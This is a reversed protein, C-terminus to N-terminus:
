PAAPKEAAKASKKAAHAELADNYQVQREFVVQDIPTLDAQLLRAPKEETRGAPENRWPTIFLGIPADDEPKSSNGSDAAPATTEGTQAFAISSALLGLVLALTKM